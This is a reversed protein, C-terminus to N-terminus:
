FTAVLLSDGTCLSVHACATMVCAFGCDPVYLQLCVSLHVQVSVCESLSVSVSTRPQGRVWSSVHLGERQGLM